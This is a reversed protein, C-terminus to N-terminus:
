ICKPGGARRMRPTSSPYFYLDKRNLVEITGENGHVARWIGYHDNGFYCSYNSRSIGPYEYVASMTDPVDRDDDTDLWRYRRGVGHLDLACNKGLVFDHHGDPAGAPGDFNRARGRFM